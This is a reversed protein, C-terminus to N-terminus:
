ILAAADLIMQVAREVGFKEVNVTLDFNRSDGYNKGTYYECYRKRTRDIRKAEAAAQELSMHELEAMRKVRWDFSGYIFVHLCHDYERLIYNSNRGVIVCNERNAMTRIADKQAEWLEEDLPRTNFLSQAFGFSSPVREDWKRVQQPDLKHSAIATQLIIDRDYFSLGLEKAVCRGITRGGAGYEREITIIKKM